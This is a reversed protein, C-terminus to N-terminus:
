NWRIPGFLSSVLILLLYLGMFVLPLATLIVMGSAISPAKALAFVLAVILWLWGLTIAPNLPTQTLRLDDFLWWTMFAAEIAWLWWFLRESKLWGFNLASLGKWLLFLIGISLLIQLSQKM